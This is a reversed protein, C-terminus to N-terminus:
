HGRAGGLAARLEAPDATIVTYPHESLRAAVAIFRAPLDPGRLAVAERTIRYGPFDRRLLQLSNTMAALTGLCDPRQWAEDQGAPVNKAITLFVDM